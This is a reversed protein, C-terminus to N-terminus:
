PGFRDPLVVASSTSSGTSLIMRRMEEITLLNDAPLAVTMSATNTSEPQGVWSTWYAARLMLTSEASVQALPDSGPVTVVILVRPVQNPHCLLNYTAVDLDYHLETGVTRVGATTKVQAWVGPNWLNGVQEPMTLSVDVKLLDRPSVVGHQIGCASALARVYDEGYQGLLTNEDLM